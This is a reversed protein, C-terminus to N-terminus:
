GNQRANLRSLGDATGLWLNGASDEHIATIWNHSLSNPTM